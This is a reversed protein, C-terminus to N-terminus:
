DGDDDESSKDQDLEDPDVDADHTNQSRAAFLQRPRQKAGLGPRRSGDPDSSLLKKAALRPLCHPQADAVDRGLTGPLPQHHRHASALVQRKRAERAKASSSAAQVLSRLSGLDFLPSLLHIKLGTLDVARRREEAAAIPLLDHEGLPKV